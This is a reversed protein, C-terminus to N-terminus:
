DNKEFIQKRELAVLASVKPDNWLVKGSKIDDLLQHHDRIIPNEGAASNRPHTDAVSADYGTRGHPPGGFNINTTAGPQPLKAGGLKKMADDIQHELKVIERTAAGYLVADLADERSRGPHAAQNKAVADRLMRQTDAAEAVRKELMTQPAIMPVMEKKLRQSVYQGVMNKIKRLKQHRIVAGGVYKAIVDTATGSARLGLITRYDSKSLRGSDFAALLARQNLGAMMAM